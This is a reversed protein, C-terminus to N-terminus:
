HPLRRTELRIDSWQHRASLVVQGVGLYTALDAGRSVAEVNSPFASGVPEDGGELRNTWMELTEDFYTEVARRPM